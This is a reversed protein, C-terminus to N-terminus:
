LGKDKKIQEFLAKRHDAIQALEFDSIQRRTQSLREVEQVVEQGHLKELHVRLKEKMGEGYYNCQRCQIAVNREDFRTANFGRSMFHGTQTSGDAAKWLLYRGCTACRVEGNEGAEKARFWLSFWKDAKDLLKSHESKEGKKKAKRLLPRAEAITYTQKFGTRKLPTKRLM